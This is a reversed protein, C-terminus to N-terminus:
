SVPQGGIKRNWLPIQVRFMRIAVQQAMVNVDLWTGDVKAGRQPTEEGCGQGGAIGGVFSLNSFGKVKEAM